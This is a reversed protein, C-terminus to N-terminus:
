SYRNIVLYRIFDPEPILFVNEIHFRPIPSDWEIGGFHRGQIKFLLDMRSSGAPEADIEELGQRISIGVLAVAVFVDEGDELADSFGLLGPFKGNTM